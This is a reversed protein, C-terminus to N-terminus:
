AAPAEDLDDRVNSGLSVLLELAKRRDLVYYDADGGAGTARGVIEDARVWTSTLRNAYYGQTAGTEPDYVVRALAVPKGAHDRAYYTIM